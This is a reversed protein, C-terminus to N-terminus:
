GMIVVGIVGVVSGCTTIKSSPCSIHAVLNVSMKSDIIEKEM